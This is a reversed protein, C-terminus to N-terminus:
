AGHAPQRPVTVRTSDPPVGPYRRHPRRAYQSRIASREFPSIPIVLWLYGLNNNRSYVDGAPRHRRRRRMSVRSAPISAFYALFRAADRPLSQSLIPTTFISLGEHRACPIVLIATVRFTPAKAVVGVIASYWFALLVQPVALLFKTEPTRKPFGSGFPRPTDVADLM